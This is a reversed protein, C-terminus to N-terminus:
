HKPTGDPNRGAKVHAAEIAKQLDSKVGNNLHAQMGKFDSNKLNKKIFEEKVLAAHNEAIEAVIAKKNKAYYLAEAMENANVNGNEDLFLTPFKYPNKLVDDIVQKTAVDVKHSSKFVTKTGDENVHELDFSIEKLSELTKPAINTDWNAKFEAAKRQKELEEPSVNNTPELIKVQQAKKEARFAITDTELKLKNLEAVEKEDDSSDEDVASGYEKKFLIDVQKETAHPYKAKLLERGLDETKKEDWNTFQTELFTKESIGKRKAEDIAKTLESAYEIQKEKEVIKEVTVEKHFKKELEEIGMSSEYGYKEKLIEELSKTPASDAPAAPNPNSAEPAQPEGSPAPNAPESPAPNPTAPEAPTGMMSKAVETYMQEKTKEGATTQIIEM